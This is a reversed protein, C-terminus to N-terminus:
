DCRSWHRSLPFEAGAAQLVDRERRDIAISRKAFSAGWLGRAARANADAGELTSSPQAAVKELRVKNAADCNLAALLAPLDRTGVDGLPAETQEKEVLDDGFEDDEEPAATEVDDPESDGHETTVSPSAPEVQAPNAAAEAKAAEIQARLWTGMKEGFEFEKFRACLLVDAGLLAKITERLLRDATWFLQGVYRSLPRETPPLYEVTRLTGEHIIENRATGLTAFWDELESRM